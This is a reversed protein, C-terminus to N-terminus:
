LYIRLYKFTHVDKICVSEIYCIGKISANKVLVGGICIGKIYASKICIDRIYANGANIGKTDFLELYLCSSFNRFYTLINSANILLSVFVLIDGYRMNLCSSIALDNAFFIKM